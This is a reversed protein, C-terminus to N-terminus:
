GDGSTWAAWPSCRHRDVEGGGQTRSRWRDQNLQIQASRGYSSVQIGVRTAVHTREGMGDAVIRMQPTWREGILQLRESSSGGLSEQQTARGLTFHARTEPRRENLAENVLQRLAKLPHDEVDSGLQDADLSSGGCMARRERTGVMQQQYTGRIKDAHPVRAGRELM